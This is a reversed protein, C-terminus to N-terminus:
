NNQGALFQSGAGLGISGSPSSVNYLWSNGTIETAAHFNVFETTPYMNTGLPTM